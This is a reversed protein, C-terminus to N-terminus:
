AAGAKGGREARVLARALDLAEDIEKQLAAGKCAPRAHELTTAIQELATM